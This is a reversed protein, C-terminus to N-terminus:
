EVVVRPDIKAILETTGAKMITVSYDYEKEALGENVCVVMYRDPDWAGSTNLWMADSTKGKITVDAKKYDYGLDSQREPYLKYRLEKKKNVHVVPAVVIKGDGYEVKVNKHGSGGCSNKNGSGFTECASLLFALCILLTTKLM